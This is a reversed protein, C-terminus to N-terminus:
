ENVNTEVLASDLEDHFIREDEGDESAEQNEADTDPYLKEIKKFFKNYMIASVYAPVAIFTMIVIPILNGFLVILVPPVIMMVIMVITKPFQLISAKFANKITQKVPNAFKAQMPFVYMFTSTVVIGLMLVLARILFHFQIEAVYMVIVDMVFVFIAVFFILWIITAQKFNSKFAKFYDKVIYCEEGRVMKLCVYHLSTFAAGVTVIPICCILTIVNLIILDAFKTLGQMLPGDMSFIAGM